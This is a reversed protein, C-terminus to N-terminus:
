SKFLFNTLDLFLDKGKPSSFFGSAGAPVLIDFINRSRDSYKTTVTVFSSGRIKYYEEKKMVTGWRGVYM